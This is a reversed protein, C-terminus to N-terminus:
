SEYVRSKSEIYGAIFDEYIYNSFVSEACVRYEVNLSTLYIVRERFRPLPPSFADM